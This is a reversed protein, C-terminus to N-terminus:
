LSDGNVWRQDWKSGTQRKPPTTENFVKMKDKFPLKAQDPSPSKGFQEAERSVGCPKPVPYNNNHQQRGPYTAYGEDSVRARVRAIHENERFGPPNAGGNSILNQPKPPPPPRQYYEVQDQPPLPPPPADEEDVPPPPRPFEEDDSDEVKGDHVFKVGPKAVEADPSPQIIETRVSAFKVRRTRGNYSTDRVDEDDEPREIIRNRLQNARAERLRDDEERQRRLEEDKEWDVPRPHVPEAVAGAPQQRFTENQQFDRVLQEDQERRWQQEKRSREDEERQWDVRARPRDELDRANGRAEWSDQQVPVRIVKVFGGDVESKGSSEQALRQQFQREIEAPDMDFSDERTDPLPPRKVPVFDGRNEESPLPPRRSYEVPPLNKSEDAAMPGRKGYDAPRNSRMDENRIVERQHDDNENGKTQENVYHVQTNGTAPRVARSAEKREERERRLRERFEQEMREAEEEERQIQLQLEKLRREKERRKQELMMELERERRTMEDLGANEEQLRKEREEKERQDREMREQEQKKWEEQRKRELEEREIRDREKREWDEKRKREMEEREKRQREQQEKEIRLREQQEREIRMREQQEREIRMREQQEREIRLREQQEREIRLREQQEREIRLREQQEKEIRLREQQEREARQRELQEREEQERRAQEERKMRELREAEERSIRERELIEQERREDEGKRQQMEKQRRQIDLPNGYPLPVGAKVPKRAPPAEDVKYEVVPKAQVLPQPFIFLKFVLQFPLQQFLCLFSCIKCSIAKSIDVKEPAGDHGIQTKWENYQGDYPSRRKPPPEPRLQKADSESQVSTNLTTNLTPSRQASDQPLRYRPPARPPEKKLPLPSLNRNEPTRNPSEVSVCPFVRNNMM